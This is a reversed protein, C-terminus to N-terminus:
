SKILLGPENPDPCSPCGDHHFHMSDGFPCVISSCTPCEAVVCQNLLLDLLAGNPKSKNIEELLKDHITKM